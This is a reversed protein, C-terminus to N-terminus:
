AATTFAKPFAFSRSQDCIFAFIKQRKYVPAMRMTTRKVPHVRLFYPNHAVPSCGKIWERRNADMLPEFSSLKPVNQRLKPASQCRKPATQCCLFVGFGWKLRLIATEPLFVFIEASRHEDAAFFFIGFSGLKLNDM